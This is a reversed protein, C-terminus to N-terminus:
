RRRRVTLGCLLSIMLLLSTSPEPVSQAASANLTTGFNASLVLFDPFGVTGDCDIDGSTHDAVDQGFSASLILFDPFGVAGDGDLDGGSNPDCLISGGLLSMLMYDDEGSVGTISFFDGFAM